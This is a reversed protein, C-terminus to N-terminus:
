LNCKNTSSLMRFVPTNFNVEAGFQKILEILKHIVAKYDAIGEEPVLLAEYGRVIPERERLAEKSLFSLGKLGNAHGRKALERLTEAQNSNSAFVVKGCVEHHIDHQRCFHTMQTIGEVALKVKLSGPTYYLGYHLV